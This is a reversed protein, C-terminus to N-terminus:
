LQLGLILLGFYKRGICMGNMDISGGREKQSYQSLKEAESIMLRLFQFSSFPNIREVLSIM